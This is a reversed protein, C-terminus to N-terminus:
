PYPSGHAYDPTCPMGQFIAQANDVCGLDDAAVGCTRTRWQCCGGTGSGGVSFSGFNIAFRGGQCTSDANGPAKREICASSGASVGCKGQTNQAFGTLCCGTFSHATDPWGMRCLASPDMGTCPLPNPDAFSTSNGDEASGAERTSSSDLSSGGATDALPSTEEIPSAETVFSAEAASSDGADPPMAGSSSCAMSLSAMVALLSVSRM